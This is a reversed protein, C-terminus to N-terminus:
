LMDVKIKQQPKYGELKVMDPTWHQMNLIDIEGLGSLDVTPADNGGDFDRLIQRAAAIQNDYLHVCSGSAHLNLFKRGTQAEILLGLLAYSAVNFPWGLFVDWARMTFKLDFGGNRGILQWSTHCPPLATIDFHHVAQFAQVINRSGRPDAIFNKIVKELQYDWYYGYGQGIFVGHGWRDADKDWIKVGHDHLYNISTDGRLFWFLETVISKFHTDKITVLPFGNEMNYTMNWVPIELRTVGRRENTYDEGNALIESLLGTFIHDIKAM